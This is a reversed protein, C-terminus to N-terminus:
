KNIIYMSPIMLPTSAYIFPKIKSANEEEKIIVQKLPDEEEYYEIVIPDQKNHFICFCFLVFILVLTSGLLLFVLITNM